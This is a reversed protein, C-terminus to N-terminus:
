IPAPEGAPDPRGRWLALTVILGALAFVGALILALTRPAAGADSARGTLYSSLATALTMGAYEVAFVRGRLREPLRMQLLATSFVWQISGGVHALVVCLMAVALTPSYSFGIYGLASFFFSLGIARRMFSQGDGFLRQALIPGIGAGAGRAAYLLGISLAGGEGLPFLERGFLALLLLVGGAMSWMMKSFTIWAVERHTFIYRLGEALESLARSAPAAGAEQRRGGAEQGEGVRVTFILAASLLYSGSDLLFSAQVGLTGVVLGGLAAGLALMASWTAGSIANAAVLEERACVDPTIASRAPEFFSTLVVKLAVVTYVLWLDGVTHVLLLLLVLLARGIDSAILVTRRPLRDVVVGAFPGVLAGPLFQAVMLLGVAEGSGTLNLLLTFLAISDLWDGLQSVLQGYWLRRFPKNRRLLAVYGVSTTTM